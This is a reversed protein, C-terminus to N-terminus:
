RIMNLIKALGSNLSYELASREREEVRKEVFDKEDSYDLVPSLLEKLHNPPITSGWLTGKLFNVINMKDIGCKNAIDEVSYGSKTIKMKLYETYDEERPFDELYCPYPLSSKMLVM